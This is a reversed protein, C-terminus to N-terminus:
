LRTRLLRPLKMKTWLFRPFKLKTRLVSPTEVMKAQDSPTEVMETQHSPNEFTEAHDSTASWGAGTGDGSLGAIDVVNLDWCPVDIGTQDVDFRVYAKKTLRSITIVTGFHKTLGISMYKSSDFM